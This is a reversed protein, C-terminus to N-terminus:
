SMMYVRFGLDQDMGEIRIRVYKLLGPHSGNGLKSRRQVKDRSADISARLQSAERAQRSAHARLGSQRGQNADEVETGSRRRVNPQGKNTSSRQLTASLTM